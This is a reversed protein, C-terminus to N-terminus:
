DKRRSPKRRTVLGLLPLSALVNRSEPSKSEIPQEVVVAQTIAETHVNEDVGAWWDTAPWEAMISDTTTDTEPLLAAVVETSDVAVTEAAEIPEVHHITVSPTVTAKMTASALMIQDANNIPSGPLTDQQINLPAQVGDTSVIFDLPAGYAGVDGNANIARVWFRYSGPSLANGPQFVVIGGTLAASINDYTAITPQSNTNIRKIIMQYSTAGTVPRWTFQPTTGSGAGDPSLLFPAVPTNVSLTFDFPESWKSVNGEADYGRVWVRYIGNTLDISPTFSTSTLNNERIIQKQGTSVNDVWLDYRVFVPDGAWTITPLLVTAPSIPGTVVPVAVTFDKPASWTNGLGEDNVARVWWRYDGPQLVIDNATYSLTTIDDVFIAQRITRTLDNVWLEYHNTGDVHEWDFTPTRDVIVGEPSLSTVQQNLDVTFDYPASWAGQQGNAEIPRVWVRYLGNDLNTTPTFSNTLVTTNIVQSQGGVRNVWIQYADAALDTWAITPTQDITSALPATITPRVIDFNVPESWDGPHGTADTARIWARYSGVGLRSTAEFSTESGPIGTNRITQTVAGPALRNVWLDYSDTGPVGDWTFQPTLDFIDGVPAVLVMDEVVFSFFPSWDSTGSGNSSRVRARYSGAKLRDTPTYQSNTLGNVLIVGNQTDGLTTRDVELDFVGTIDTWDITPTHDTTVGAPATITPVQPNGVTVTMIFIDTKAPAPLSDDTVRLAVVYDGNVPYSNTQTRGTKESNFTTGDYTFDWEYTLIFQRPANSHTSGSGDFQITEGAGAPNPTAVFSAVPQNVFREVAGIDLTQTSNLEGDILRPSGTQDLSTSLVSDVPYLDHDAADIAPSTPSTFQHHYTGNGIANTLVDLQPDIPTTVFGLQDTGKWGNSITSDVLSDDLAGILNSGFSLVNGSVDNERSDSIPTDVNGARNTAILSNAIRAAIGGTLTALGGGRSGATNNAITVNTLTALGENFIGGGRSVSDNTSFTTNLADLTGSSFVGGGRSGASNLAIGSRLLTTTGTTDNYIGGGQNFAVNNAVNSDVVTLNGENFIAGGDHSEGNRLTVGELTLSAGPLVHFIRDLAGGDIFTADAGAGIITLNGTVDLDGFFAADEFHGDLSLQYTGASLQVVDSGFSANSEMVAARLTTNGNIDLFAGDGPNTDIGDAFGTVANSVIWSDSADVVMPNRTLDIIDSGDAVLTLVYTGGDGTFSSLDITYNLADVEVLSAGTIDVAEGDLTLTFDAIDVGSVDEGFTIDVTSVATARPDPAISFSATPNGPQPGNATGGGTDSGSGGNSSDSGSGGGSSNGSVPGAAPTNITLSYDRTTGHIFNKGGAQGIFGFSSVHSAREDSMIEVIYTRGAVVSATYTANAGPLATTSLTNGGSDQVLAVEERNQSSDVEYVNVAVFDGTTDNAAILVDLVGTTGAVFKYYDRDGKTEITLPGSILSDVSFSGSIPSLGNLEHAAVLSDNNDLDDPQIPAEGDAVGFVDGRDLSYPTAGNFGAADVGTDWQYDEEGEIVSQGLFVSDFFDSFGLAPSTLGFGGTDFDSEVRLTPTGEGDFAWLGFPSVSNPWNLPVQGVEWTDHNTWGLTRTANRRRGADLVTNGSGDHPGPDTNGHTHNPAISNPTRSKFESEINDLFAFGNVIDLSDGTNERFVLDLRSIADRSGNWGFGEPAHFNSFSQPPVVSVFTDVYFETGFNGKFDNNWVEADIGSQGLEFEPNSFLLFDPAEVAGVRIVLGGLTGNVLQTKHLWDTNAVGDDDGPNESGLVTVRSQTDITGNSEIKNDQVRLEINPTVNQTWDDYFLPVEDERLIDYNEDLSAHLVDDPGFQTQEDSATNVVYVGSLTNSLIENNILNIRSDEGVRNLIDVGRGGNRTVRSDRVTLTSIADDFLEFADEGGGVLARVRPLNDALYEIGDAGNGAIEANTILIDTDTVPEEGHLVNGGEITKVINGFADELHVMHGIDIGDGVNDLFFNFDATIARHASIRNGNVITFEANLFAGSGQTIKLGDEGNSQFFNQGSVGGDGIIASVGQGLHLGNDANNNFNNTLFTFDLDDGGVRSQFFDNPDINSISRLGDEGNASIENREFHFSGFSAGHNRFGSLSNNSLTNDSWIGDVTLTSGADLSDVSFGDGVNNEITSEAMNVTIKENEAGFIGIGGYTGDNGLGDIPHFGDNTGQTDSGNGDIQVSLFTLQLEADAAAEVRIGYHDNNTINGGTVTFELPDNTNQAYFDVGDGLNGEFTNDVLRVANMDADDRRDFQFGDDGNNFVANKVVELDQIRTREEMTFKIGAGENGLNDVGIVNGDIISESILAISDASSQDGELRVHIAEGNYLSTTADNVQRTFQNSRIEFSGTGADLALIRVGSGTNQDFNNGDDANKTGINVDFAVDETDPVANPDTPDLPLSLGVGFSHSVIDVGFEGNTRIDNGVIDGNFVTGVPLDVSIGALGNATISNNALFQPLKDGTFTTEAIPVWLGSGPSYTGNGVVGDLRFTNTDVVTIRHTGNAADNGGVETVRVSDGTVLGHAVSTILIGDTNTAGTVAGGGDSQLDIRVVGNSVSGTLDPDFWSGGGQYSGQRVFEGGGTYLGNGAVGTLEITDSNIVTITHQGNASTTGTVGWVYISDGSTLGHKVANIRVPSTNTVSDIKAGSIQFQNNNLRTVSHLGNAPHSKTIDDDVVGQIMIEEGDLLGHNNSTIVIPGTDSVNQVLGTRSVSPNFDIGHEGHSSLNNGSIAGTFNSDSLDFRIGSGGAAVFENSTIVGTLDSENIASILLTDGPTGQVVNKDIVFNTLPSNDLQINIGNAGTTGSGAVFMSVDPRASDGIMTGALVVGGTFDFTVGAGILGDGTVTTQAGFVDLDINWDFTEGPGFASFTMELVTNNASLTSTIFGTPVGTGNAPAFVRGTTVDPDFQLGAPGVDLTIKEISRGGSSTNTVSFPQNFTDGDIEFDISVPAGAGFVNDKITLGDTANDALNIRVADQTASTIQSNDVITFNDATSQNVDLLIGENAGRAAISNGVIIGHQIESGTSAFVGVGAVTSDDVTLAYVDTNDLFVDIGRGTGEITVGEISITTTGTVNLLNIDIGEASETGDTTYNRLTVNEISISELNIGSFDLKIADSAVTDLTISEIALRDFGVLDSNDLRLGQGPTVFDALNNPEIFLTTLLAREELQEIGRVEGTPATRRRRKLMSGQTGQIRRTLSQLWTQMLM